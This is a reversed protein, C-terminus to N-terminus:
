EAAINGADDTLVIIGTSLDFVYGVPKKPKYGKPLRQVVEVESSNNRSNVPTNFLYPGLQGSPDPKGDANTKSTLQEWHPYRRFDPLAGNHQQRYVALGTRLLEAPSAGGTGASSGGTGGSETPIYAARAKADDFVCGFADLAYLRRTSVSFVFGADSSDIRQGPRCALDGNRDLEVQLPVVLVDIAM